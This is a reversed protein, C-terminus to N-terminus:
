AFPKHNPLSEVKHERSLLRGSFIILAWGSIMLVKRFTPMADWLGKKGSDLYRRWQSLDPLKLRYKGDVKGVFAVNENESRSHKKSPYDVWFHTLSAKLNYSINKAALLSALVIARDECDGRCRIVAERATSLYDPVGYNKWDYEYKVLEMVLNDIKAPEDPVEVEILEIVSPDVPFRAYRILSSIFVFPNPYCVIFTWFSLIAVMILVIKWWKKRKVAM